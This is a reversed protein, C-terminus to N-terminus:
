FSTTTILATFEHFFVNSALLTCKKQAATQHFKRRRVPFRALIKRERERAIKKACEM